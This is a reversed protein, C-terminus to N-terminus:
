PRRLAATHRPRGALDTHDVVDVWPCSAEPAPGAGPAPPRRNADRQAGLVGPVGSEGAALGQCDAHEIVVLGGPRLLLAAQVALPRIVDLGDTGGFLALAPDNDRVEPDRPVADQAIYPPNTLVVDVRGRWGALPGGPDAVRTADARVLQVTSGAAAVQGAHESINVEAWAAAADSLEVAFVQTAARETAVSLAVAGSGTCLDVVVLPRDRPRPEPQGAVGGPRSSRHAPAGFRLVHDVM